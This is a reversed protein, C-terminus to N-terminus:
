HYLKKQKQKQKEFCKNFSNEKTIHVMKLTKISNTVINNRNQTQQSFFYICGLLQSNRKIWCFNKPSLGLLCCRLYGQSFQELLPSSPTLNYLLKCCLALRFMLTNKHILSFWIGWTLSNLTKRCMPLHLLRPESVDNKEYADWSEPGTDQMKKCGSSRHEGCPTAAAMAALDSWSGPHGWPESIWM